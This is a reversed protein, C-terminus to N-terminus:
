CSWLATRHAGDESSVTQITSQM